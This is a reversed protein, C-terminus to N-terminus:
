IKLAQQTCKMFRIELVKLLGVCFTYEFTDVSSVPKYNNLLKSMTLTSLALIEFGFWEPPGWIRQGKGQAM